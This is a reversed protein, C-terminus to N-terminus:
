SGSFSGSKDPSLLLLTNMHLHKFPPLARLRKRDFVANKAVFFLVNLFQFSLCVAQVKLCYKM